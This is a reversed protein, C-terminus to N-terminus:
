TGQPRDASTAVTWPPPIPAAPTPLPCGAREGLHALIRRTLGWIFRDRVKTAAQTRRRGDYGYEITAQQTPSWLDRLQIWYANAVESNPELATEEPVYYAFASLSLLPGSTRAVTHELVHGLYAHPPLAIAVEERTEREATTRLTGDRPAFRGGPMAMHGSWPDGVREAREIICTSLADGRGALVIAVAAAITPDAPAQARHPTVAKRIDLLTPHPIPVSM